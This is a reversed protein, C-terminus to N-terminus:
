DGICMALFKKARLHFCNEELGHDLSCDDQDVLKQILYIVEDGLFKIRDCLPYETVRRIPPYGRVDVTERKVGYKDLMEHAVRYGNELVSIYEQDKREDYESM